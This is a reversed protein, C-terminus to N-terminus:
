KLNLKGELVIDKHKLKIHSRVSNKKICLSCHPCIYTQKRSQNKRDYKERLSLVIPTAKNVANPYQGLIEKELLRLSIKDQKIPSAIEECYVQNEGQFLCCSKRHKHEAFRQKINRFTSGIYVENKDNWLKYVIGVM